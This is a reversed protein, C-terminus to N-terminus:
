SRDGSGARGMVREIAELVAAEFRAEGFREANRRCAATTEASREPVRALADLLAADNSRAGGPVGAAEWAVHAGTVGDVVTDLAGGAGRALVPCGCAQAEAAVIGFDEIQPFVLLRASRYLDRLEVDGIRGLFMTEGGIRRLRRADSGSGVIVLPQGAIGAAAIALDFRKYPELAGVALWFSGPALNAPSAPVGPGPTFFGTRVPPFVVRSTRAYCREIERQTHSSNALFETVQAATRRDWRRLPGGLLRLGLGAPGRGYQEVQSWLYRAPTHCYCLHPVGEPTRLGKIAASSTSIVLDIPERAHHRALRRSLSAVGWPYLPLLWRRVRVGGPVRGLASVRKPIQDLAPSLPRGDDFMTYMAVVRHHPALARAIADLVREGGRMGVLWDHALVIRLPTAGHPSAGAPQAELREPQTAPDVM